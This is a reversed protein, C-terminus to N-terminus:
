ARVLGELPRVGASGPFVSAELAKDPVRLHQGLVAKLLGRLDATPALDRNQYLSAPSLGPWDAVVKGGQVNGGALFACSATGHDTGDTGNPRVTRGFETVAAVLSGEWAAGLGTHLAAIAGALQGLANALRGKQTGQGVHTDWGGIELVAVNPGGEQALTHAALGALSVVDRKRPASSNAQEVANSARLGAAYARALLPDPAYLRELQASLDVHGGEPQWNSVPARGKLVLPMEPTFAIGHLGDAGMALLARNLWGDGAAGPHTAGTELVNQADFHSRERYPSAIAHVVALMGGTYLPALPSLGPHLWFRGDLPVAGNAAQLNGLALKGRLAAYDPDALPAVAGLGDMAGRLIILVFRRARANPLTAFALGPVMGAALGLPVLRMLDRRGPMVSVKRFFDPPM